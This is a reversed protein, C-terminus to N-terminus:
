KSPCYALAASSAKISILWRTLFIKEIIRGSDVEQITIVDGETTYYTNAWTVFKAFLEAKNRCTVVDRVNDEPYECFEWIFYYNKM